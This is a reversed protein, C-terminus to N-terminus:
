SAGCRAARNRRRRRPKRPPGTAADSTPPPWSSAPRPDGGAPPTSTLIRRFRTLRKLARGGRSKPEQGAPARRRQRAAPPFVPSSERASGPAVAASPPAGGWGPRGRALDDDERLRGPGGRGVRSTSSAPASSRPFVPWSPRGRDRVILLVTWSRNGCPVSASRNASV